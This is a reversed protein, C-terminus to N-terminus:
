YMHSRRMTRDQQSQTYSQSLNQPHPHHLPTSHTPGALYSERLIAPDDRTINYSSMTMPTSTSPRVSTTHVPRLHFEASNSVNTTPATPATPLHPPSSSRQRPPAGTTYRMGSSPTCYRELVYLILDLVGNHTTATTSTLSPPLPLQEKDCYAIIRQRTM